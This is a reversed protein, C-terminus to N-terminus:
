VWVKVREFGLITIACKFPNSRPYCILATNCYKTYQQTALVCNLISRSVIDAAWMPTGGCIYCCDTIHFVISRSM